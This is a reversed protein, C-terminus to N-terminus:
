VVRIHWPEYRVGLYNGRPYRMRLNGTAILRKFVETRAFATTFNAAGLGRQGVDFDGVAHYSYGPPALSRSARSLNGEVRAAKALFLHIQKAVSRMGSTLVLRPGVVRRMALYRETATGRLLRQGTGRIVVAHRVELQDTLGGLVKEGYFGYERADFYFLSEIFGIEARTFPEVSRYQRAVKRMHDFGLLAFNGNGVTAQVRRIRALVDRLLRRERGEVYRDGLLPRDLEDPGVRGAAMVRRPDLATLTAIGAAHLLFARRAKM